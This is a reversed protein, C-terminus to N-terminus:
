SLQYNRNPLHKCPLQAADNMELLNIEIGNCIADLPLHNDGTGFPEELEEALYELSVLTYSVFVSVLIAMYRLEVVLAFPLLSCFLYVTRHLILTYAFPIPTNEIRECGGLIVSLQNLNTDLAHFLIDSIRGASRLRGIKQGLLLLVRNSPAQSHHVQSFLDAPLLRALDASPDSGRLQHKLAYTFTIQLAACEESESVADPLMSKFQRLLSRHTILLSGWLKRAEIFRAYSANNRFGLAIAIALGLLSFPAL